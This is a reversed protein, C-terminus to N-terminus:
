PSNTDNGSTLATHTLLARVSSHPPDPAVGIGVAVQKSHEYADMFSTKYDKLLEEISLSQGDHPIMKEHKLQGLQPKEAADPNAALMLQSDDCLTFGDAGRALVDAPLNRSTSQDQRPFSVVPNACLKQM